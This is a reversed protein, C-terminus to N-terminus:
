KKTNQINLITKIINDNVTQTHTHKELIAIYKHETKKKNVNAPLICGTRKKQESIDYL